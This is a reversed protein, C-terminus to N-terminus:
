TKASFTSFTLGTVNGWTTQIWNAVVLVYHSFWEIAEFGALEALALLVILGVLALVMRM